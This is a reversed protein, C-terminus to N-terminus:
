RRSPLASSVVLSSGRPDPVGSSCTSRDHGSGPLRRRDPPAPASPGGGHVGGGCGMRRSDVAWSSARHLHKPEVLGWGEVAESPDAEPYRRALEELGGKRDARQAELAQAVAERMRGVLDDSLRDAAVLGSSYLQLGFPIARVAVRAQRRVRPMLDVFDAVADIEGRGLASPAEGYGVPVVQAPGLGLRDLCAQYEHVLGSDPPGGLRAGALDRPAVRAM